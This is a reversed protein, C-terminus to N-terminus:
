AVPIRDTCRPRCPGYFAILPVHLARALHVLGGDNGVFLASKGLVMATQALSTEGALVVSPPKLM